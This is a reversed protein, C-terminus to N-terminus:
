ASPRRGLRAPWRMVQGRQPTRLVTETFSNISVYKAFFQELVTGLLFVSTGEFATEDCDLSLELGRVFSAPGAVPLPRVIPVSSISRVGEIQRSQAADALHSYLQLLERLVAAGEGEGTNTISLYNLSLHSILRWSTGGWAHSEHPATPGAVCRVSEVPAGSEVLFDTNLGGVSMHLPLDRNTCLAQISLQKLDSQYPGNQGDVLSIFLESGSYTSRPGDRRQRASAVRPERHLSYYAADAHHPSRETCSYFPAFTRQAEANSGFGIVESVTHLEFDMPRTRDAIVHYEHVRDTLHIRDVRRPFLNIAPSCFLSVLAPTVGREVVPDHRDLLVIVELESGPCQAVAERLGRLEAFMFRSPLAFYEQLLRYGAFSRPGSPLLAEDDAFGVPLVAGETVVKRTDSGPARLVSGIAGGVLLEYLRHSTQDTGRIFLPLRDLSLERIPSGDMTKFRLRLAGRVPSRSVLRAEGVDGVYASHTISTLTLPWLTLDHATRYVCATQEGQGVHGRLSTGRPVLFGDSLAGQRLNPEFHLVAMSPTPALYHPYVMELMNETFRPFESDIKLQVRASLFAFGELLREVYPDACEFADLGLRGAIKPFQKAFEGGLQRVYQLERNYYALLRHDM